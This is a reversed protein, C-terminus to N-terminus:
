DIFMCRVNGAQCCLVLMREEAFVANTMPIAQNTIYVGAEAWMGEGLAKSWLGDKGFGGPCKATKHYIM